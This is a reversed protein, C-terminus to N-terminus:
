ALDRARGKARKAGASSHEESEYNKITVLQRDAIKEKIYVEVRPRDPDIRLRRGDDDIFDSSDDRIMRKQVFADIIGKCMAAYNDGDRERNTRFYLKFFVAIRGNFKVPLLGENINREIVTHAIKQWKHKLVLIDGQEKGYTMVQNISDPAYPVVIQYRNIQM